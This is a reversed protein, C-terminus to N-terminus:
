GSGLMPGLEGEPDAICLSEVYSGGGDLLEVMVDFSGDYGKVELSWMWEIDLSELSCADSRSDSGSCVCTEFTPDFSEFNSLERPLLKLVLLSLELDDPVNTVPEM